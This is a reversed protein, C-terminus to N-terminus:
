FYINKHINLSSMHTYIKIDLVTIKFLHFTLDFVVIQDNFLYICFIFTTIWFNFYKLLDNTYKFTNIELHQVTNNSIFFAKM